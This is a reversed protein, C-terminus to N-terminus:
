VSTGDSVIEYGRNMLRMRFEQFYRRHGSEVQEAPYIWGNRRATELIAEYEADSLRRADVEGIRHHAEGPHAALNPLLALLVALVARTM